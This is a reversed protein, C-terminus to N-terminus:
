APPVKRNVKRHLTARRTRIKQLVTKALDRDPLAAVFEEGVASIQKNGGSASALLGKAAANNVAVTPNSLKIQAAETNLKSIDITKFHPADRYHTLYYALCAVREIDTRALKESM